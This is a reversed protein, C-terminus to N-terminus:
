GIATLRTEYRTEPFFDPAFFVVQAFPKIAFIDTTSVRLMERSLRNRSASIRSSPASESNRTLTRLRDAPPMSASPDTGTTGPFRNFIESRLIPQTSPPTAHTWSFLNPIAKSWSILGLSAQAGTFPSWGFLVACRCNRRECEALILPVAPLASLSRFMQNRRLVACSGVTM